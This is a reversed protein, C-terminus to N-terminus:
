HIIRALRAAHVHKCPKLHLQFDDCPCSDGAKDLTVRYTGNGSQSPVVWAGRDFVIKSRAAIELGKLERLDM